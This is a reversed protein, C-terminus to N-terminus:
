ISIHKGQAENDLLGAGTTCTLRASEISTNKPIHNNNIPTRCKQIEQDWGGEEKPLNISYQLSDYCGYYYKVWHNNGSHEHVAIDREFKTNPNNGDVWITAVDDVSPKNYAKPDLSANAAIHM